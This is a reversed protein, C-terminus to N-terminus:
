PADGDARGNAIYDGGVQLNRVKAHGKAESEIVQRPGDSDLDGRVHAGDEIVVGGRNTVSVAAPEARGDLPLTIMLYGAVLGVAMVAAVVVWRWPGHWLGIVTFLLALTAAAVFAVGSAIGAARKRGVAGMM